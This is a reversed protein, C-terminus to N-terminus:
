PTIRVFRSFDGAYTAAGGITRGVVNEKPVSLKVCALNDAKAQNSERLKEVLVENCPFLSAITKRDLNVAQTGSLAAPVYTVRIGPVGAGASAPVDTQSKTAEIPTLLAQIQVQIEIIVNSGTRNLINVNTLGITTDKAPMCEAGYSALAPCETSALAIDTAHRNGLGLVGVVLKPLFTINHGYLPILGFVLGFTFAGALTRSKWDSASFAWFNLLMLMGGGLLATVIQYSAPSTVVILGLFMFTVASFFWFTLIVSAKTFVLRATENKLWPEPKQGSRNAVRRRRTRIALIPTAVAVIISLVTATEVLRDRLLWQGAASLWLDFHSTSLASPSHTVTIPLSTSAPTYGIWNAVGLVTLFVLSGALCALLAYKFSRAGTRWDCLVLLATSCLALAYVSLAADTHNPALRFDTLAEVIGFWMLLSLLAVGLVFNGRILYSRNEPTVGSVEPYSSNVVYRAAFGAMLFYCVLIIGLFAEAAFSAIFTGTLDNLSFDPLEGASIANICLPLAGVVSIALSVKWTKPDKIFAVVRKSLSKM